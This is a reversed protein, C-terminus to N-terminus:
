SATCTCSTPSNLTYNSLCLTCTTSSTCSQCNTIVTSCTVCSNSSTNLYQNSSCSTCTAGSSGSVCLTCYSSNTCTTCSTIASSCAICTHSSLYYGSVCSLCYTGSGSCSACPSTCASGTTTNTNNDYYGTIPSCRTGNLSRFDATANCTACATANTCTYCDYLCAQCTMSVTNGYWRVNCTDYCLQESINYYPYGAPCTRTKHHM